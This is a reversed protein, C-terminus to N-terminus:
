AGSAPHQGGRAGRLALASVAAPTGAVLTVDRSLMSKVTAAIKEAGDPLEAV